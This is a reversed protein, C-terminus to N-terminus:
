LNDDLNCVQYVLLSSTNAFTSGVVLSITMAVSRNRSAYRKNNHCYCTHMGTPHTDCASQYYRSPPDARLPPRGISPRRGISLPRGISPPPRGAGGRISQCVPTFINGERLLKIKLHLCKPMMSIEILYLNVNPVM